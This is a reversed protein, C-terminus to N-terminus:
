RYGENMRGPGKFDAWWEPRIAPEDVDDDRSMPDSDSTWSVISRSAEWEDQDSVEGEAEISSTPSARRLRSSFEGMEPLSSAILENNSSNEFSPLEDAPSPLSGAGDDHRDSWSNAAPFLAIQRPKADFTHLPENPPTPLQTDISTEASPELKRKCRAEETKIHSKGGLPTTSRRRYFLLYANANQVFRDTKFSYSSRFVYLLM